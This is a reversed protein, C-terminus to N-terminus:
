FVQLVDAWASSKAQTGASMSRPAHQFSFCVIHNTAGFELESPGGTNGILQESLMIKIRGSDDRADWSNQLLIDQRFPPFELPIMPQSSQQAFPVISRKEHALNIDADPLGTTIDFCRSSVLKKPGDHLCNVFSTAANMLM